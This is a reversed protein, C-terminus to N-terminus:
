LTRKNAFRLLLYTGVNIMGSLLLFVNIKEFFSLFPSSIIPNFLPSIIDIRFIYLVIGVIGLFPLFFVLDALDKKSSFMASSIVIMFYSIILRIWLSLITLDLRSLVYFFFLGSFFPAIGVLLGRVFDKRVYSVSGLKIGDDNVEPILNIEGLPLFLLAAAFFHSFEHIVTGPFYLLALFYSATKKHKTLRYVFIFLENAVKKSFIFIVSITLIFILFSNM